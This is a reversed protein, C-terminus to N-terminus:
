DGWPERRMEIPLFRTIKNRTDSTWPGGPRVLFLVSLRARCSRCGARPTKISSVAFLAGHAANPPRARRYPDTCRRGRAADSGIGRAAFARRTRLLTRRSGRAARPAAGPRRTRAASGHAAAVTRERSERSKRARARVGGAGGAGGRRAGRGGCAWGGPAGARPRRGRGGRAVRGGRAAEPRRARVGLRRARGDNRGWSEFGPGDSKLDFATVM